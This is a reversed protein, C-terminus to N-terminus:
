TLSQKPASRKLDRLEIDHGDLRARHEAQEERVVQVVERIGEFTERNERQTERSADESRALAQTNANTAEITRELSNRVSTIAPEVNTRHHMRLVWAGAALLASMIAIFSVILGVVAGFVELPSM